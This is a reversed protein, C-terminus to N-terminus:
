RAATEAGNVPVERFVLLSECFWSVLGDAKNEDQWRTTTQEDFEFGNEQFLEIWYMKPQCNV